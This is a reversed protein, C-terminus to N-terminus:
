SERTRGQEPLWHTLNEILSLGLVVRESTWWVLSANKVSQGSGHTMRLYATMHIYFRLSSAYLNLTYLWKHQQWQLLNKIYILSIYDNFENINIYDSLVWMHILCM